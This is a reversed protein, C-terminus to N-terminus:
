IVRRWGKPYMNKAVGNNVSVLGIIHGNVRVAAYGNSCEVGTLTEGLLFRRIEDDKGDFDLNNKFENKDCALSFQHSPNFKYHEVDGMYLGFRAVKVGCM